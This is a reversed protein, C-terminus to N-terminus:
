RQVLLRRMGPLVCLSWCLPPVFFASLIASWVAQRWPIMGGSVLGGLTFFAFALLFALAFQIEAKEPFIWRRGEQLLIAALLFFALVFPAPELSLGARLAALPLILLSSQRTRCFLALSIAAALPLDPCGGLWGEHKWLVQLLFLLLALAYALLWSM